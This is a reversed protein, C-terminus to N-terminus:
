TRKDSRVRSSESRIQPDFWEAFAVRDRGSEKAAYLATDATALADDITTALPQITAGVSVAVHIVNGEVTTVSMLRAQQCVKDAILMTASPDKSKVPFIAAFEEGGIRGLIANAPLTSTLMRGTEAIVRDGAAHGNLDNVKKFHDIDIMLVALDEEKKARQVLQRAQEFFTRRNLLGSLMDRTALVELRAHARAWAANVAAVVITTTAVMAVGLRFSATADTGDIPVSLPIYGMPGAILMWVCVLSSVSLAVPPAFQVAILMLAPVPFVMAGMHGWLHVALLSAFLVIFSAVKGGQSGIQPAESTIRWKTHPVLTLITPVIAIYYSLESSFWFFAAELPTMGFLIPGALTGVTASGAAAAVLASLLAMADMPRNLGRNDLGLRVIALGGVAVGLLNAATLFLSEVIETNGIKDGLLFAAAASLWSLTTRFDPRLVFLALLAANPLWLSSLSFIQRTVVSLLSLVLVLAFVILAHWVMSISNQQTNPPAPIVAM